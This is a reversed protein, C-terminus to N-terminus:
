AHSKSQKQGEEAADEEFDLNQEMDSALSKIEDKSFGLAAVDKRTKLAKLVREAKTM